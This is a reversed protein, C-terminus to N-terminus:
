KLHAANDATIVEGNIWRGAPSLLFLVVAAIDEGTAIEQGEVLRQMEQEPTLGKSGVARDLWEGLGPTATGGPAVANIRVGPLDLALGRTMHDLAAKLSDYVLNDRANKQGNISSINVVSGGTQKLRPALARALLFPARLNVAYLRDWDAASTAAVPASHFVAAANVLGDVPRNGLAALLAEGADARALDLAVIGEGETRDVGLVTDGQRRLAMAIAAGIGRAAGTVVILRTM